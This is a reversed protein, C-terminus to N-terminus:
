FTQFAGKRKEDDVHCGSKYNTFTRRIFTSGVFGTKDPLDFILLLVECDEARMENKKYQLSFFVLTVSELNQSTKASQAILPCCHQHESITM